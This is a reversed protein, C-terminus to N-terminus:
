IRITISRHSIISSVSPLSASFSAFLDNKELTHDHVTHHSKHWHWLFGHMVYKYTLWAIGEWLLFTGIVTLLCLLIESTEM